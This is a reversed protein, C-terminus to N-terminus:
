SPVPNHVHPPILYGSPRNMYGIQQSYSTPTFFEIGEKHFSCRIILALEKDGAYIREIM